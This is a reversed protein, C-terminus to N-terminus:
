RCARHPLAGSAIIASFCLKREDQLIQVAVKEIAGDDKQAEEPIVRDTSKPIPTPDSTSTTFMTRSVMYRSEQWESRCRIPPLISQKEQVVKLRFRWPTHFFALKKFSRWM